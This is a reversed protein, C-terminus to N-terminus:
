DAVEPTTYDVAYGPAPPPIAMIAECVVCVTHGPLRDRERDGCISCWPLARPMRWAAAYADGLTTLQTCLPDYDPQVTVDRPQGQRPANELALALAARDAYLARLATM